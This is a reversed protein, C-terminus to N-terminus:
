NKRRTKDYNFLEILTNAFSVRENDITNITVNTDEISSVSITEFTEVEIILDLINTTYEKAAM